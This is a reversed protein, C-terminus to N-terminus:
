WAGYASNLSFYASGQCPARHFAAPMCAPVYPRAPALTCGPRPTYGYGYGRPAEHYSQQPGCRCDAAKMYSTKQVPNMYQGPM